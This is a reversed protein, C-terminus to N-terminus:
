LGASPGKEDGALRYGDTQPLHALQRQMKPNAPPEHVPLPLTVVIRTGHGYTSDVDITGGMMKVLKQTIAMGLGTGGYRRTISPDAQTFEEFLHEVQQPTMGIGTDRVEITLPAGARGAIKASVEGSETFKIANGILNHLVMQLRFKDGVRVQDAGAGRYFEFSLGKAEARLAHIDELSAAIDLPLFPANELEMKGSEIKAMDLIDNLISLLLEGSNRITQMMRKQDSTTLHGDLLEAMGLVGNLPTRLEHSMNALFVSKVRSAEEASLRAAELQASGRLLRQAVLYLLICIIAFWLLLIPVLQSIMAQGPAYGQWSFWAVTAGDSHVVPVAPTDGEPRSTLFVPQPLELPAAVRAAYSDDLYRVAVHLHETGAAQVVSGTDSVIPVVSILAPRGRIFGPETVYANESSADGSEKGVATTKERLRSVLPAISPAADAMMRPDVTKGGIAAYIPQGDPSLVYSEDHGFYDQMWVGLNNELFDMDRAVAAAIADDWIASSQQEVAIQKRESDVARLALREERAAAKGDIVTKARVAVGVVGLMALISLGFLVAVLQTSFSPVKGKQFM